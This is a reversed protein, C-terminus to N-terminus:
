KQQRNKKQLLSAGQAMLSHPEIKSRKYNGFKYHLNIGEEGHM